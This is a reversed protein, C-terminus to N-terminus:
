AAPACNRRSACCRSSARASANPSSRRPRGPNQQAALLASLDAKNRLPLFVDFSVKSTDAVAPAMNAALQAKITPIAHAPAAALAAVGIAALATTVLCGKRM